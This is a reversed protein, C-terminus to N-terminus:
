PLLFSGLAYIWCPLSDIRKPTYHGNRITTRKRKLTCHTGTFYPNYHKKRRWKARYLRFLVATGQEVILNMDIIGRSSGYYKSLSTTKIADM